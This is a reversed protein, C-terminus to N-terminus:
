YLIPLMIKMSTGQGLESEAWIKGNHRSIIEKSIYLGLGLGTSTKGENIRYFRDFIKDLNEKAIGVGKDEISICIYQDDQTTVSVYINQNDPSYAMANSLLNNIVQELKLKDALIHKQTTGKLFIKRKPLAYQYNEVIETIFDDFNTAEMDLREMKGSDLRSIDLLTTILKNLKEISNLAKQLYTHTEQNQAVRVAFQTFAKATTIPTRLEHSVINIFMDKQEALQKQEHIDTNTGIWRVIEGTESLLPLARVLFWRYTKDYRKIRVETELKKASHRAEQRLQTAAAFDQPHLILEWVKNTLAKEETLGTYQYWKPNFYTPIGDHGEVWVQHEISEALTRFEEAKEQLAQAVLKHEHIDVAAGYWKVVNGNQDKLPIARTLVWRFSGKRYRLRTENEYSNGTQVKAIITELAQEYLLPDYLLRRRDESTYLEELTCGTFSLMRQNAYLLNGKEDTSWMLVPASEAMLRMEEAQHALTQALMKHEHIDTMAGIWKIVRGKEDLHPMARTLFWRYEGDKNLIRHEMEYPQQSKLAKKWAAQLIEREDPHSVSIERNVFVQEFTTGTYNYWNRNLYEIKGHEDTSWILQPVAESLLVFEKIEKLEQRAQVLESIDRSIAVYSRINGSPEVVPIFLLNKVYSGTPLTVSVRRHVPKKSKKAAELMSWTIDAEEKGLVDFFSKGIVDQLKRNVQEEWVKNVYLYKYDASYKILVDPLKEVLTKYEWESTQLKARTQELDHFYSSPIATTETKVKFLIGNLEDTTNKLPSLEFIFIQNTDALTSSIVNVDVGTAAKKLLTSWEQQVSPWHHLLELVNSEKQVTQSFQMEFWHEYAPNAYLVTGNPHLVSIPEKLISLVQNLM